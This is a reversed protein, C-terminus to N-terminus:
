SEFTKYCFCLPVLLILGLYIILGIFCVQGEQMLSIPAQEQSPVNVERSLASTPVSVVSSIPSKINDVSEQAPSEVSLQSALTTTYQQCVTSTQLRSAESTDGGVENFESATVSGLLIQGDSLINPICLTLQNCSECM